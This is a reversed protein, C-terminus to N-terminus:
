DRRLSDGSVSILRRNRQDYSVLVVERPELTVNLDLGLEAPMSEERRRRREDIERRARAPM